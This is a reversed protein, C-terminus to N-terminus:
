IPIAEEQEEVELKKSETKHNMNITEREAREYKPKKLTHCHKTRSGREKAKQTHSSAENEAM